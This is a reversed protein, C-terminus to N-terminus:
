DWPSGFVIADLALDASLRLLICLEEASLKLLDLIGTAEADADHMCVLTRLLM